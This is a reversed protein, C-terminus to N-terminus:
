RAVASIAAHDRVATAVNGRRTCRDVEAFGASALRASLAGVPWYFAPSVKHDFEEIELAEFFGVVITGGSVTVRRLERLATDIVDPPMHILSYWALVGVFAGDAEPLDNMSGVRFRVEPYAAQAHDVFEPTLDVGLANVGISRLHATLHGPGCGADLVDGVKTGLHQEIFAVDQPHVNEIDDFLDIYTNAAAEYANWVDVVYARYTM